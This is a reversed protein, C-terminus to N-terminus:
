RGAGPNGSAAPLYGFRAMEDKLASQIAQVEDAKLDAKWRGVSASPSSSTMHSRVESTRRVPPEPDLHLGLWSSLDAAVRPLDAVLDEYRVWRSDMSPAERTMADFEVSMAEIIEALYEEDTSSRGHGFGRYHRREDFAKISAFIDRPDRVLNVVKCEIGAAVLPELSWAWIKEAYYRVDPGNASKAAESFAIWAHRLSRLFFERRDVSEPNFPLPGHRDTDKFFIVEGDPHLKRNFPVEIPTLTHLLYTLYRNEFPPVRDVVVDPSTALLQMLLTSGTRGEPIRVLLPTLMAVDAGLPMTGRRRTLRKLQWRVRRAARRGATELRDLNVM